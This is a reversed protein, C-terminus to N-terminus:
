KKSKIAMAMAVRFHLYPTHLSAWFQISDEKFGLCHNAKYIPWTNLIKKM